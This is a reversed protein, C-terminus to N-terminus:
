GLHPRAASSGRGRFSIRDIRVCDKACAVDALSTELSTSPPQESPCPDARDSWRCLAWALRRLARARAPPRARRAWSRSPVAGRWAPGAGARAEAPAEVSEVVPEATRCFSLDRRADVDDRARRRKAAREPEQQQQQEEPEEQQKEMQAKLQQIEMNDYAAFKDKKTAGGAAVAGSPKDPADRKRSAAPSAAAGTPHEWQVKKTAAYFFYFRKERKSFQKAWGPPLPADAQSDAM